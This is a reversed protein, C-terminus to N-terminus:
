QDYQMNLKNYNLFKNEIPLLRMKLNVKLFFAKTNSGSCKFFYKNIIKGSNNNFQNGSM